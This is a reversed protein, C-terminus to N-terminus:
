PMQKLALIANCICLPGTEDEAVIVWSGHDENGVQWHDPNWLMNNDIRLVGAKEAAFMADNWDTSPKWAEHVEDKFKPNYSEATSVTPIYDSDPFRWFWKEIKGSIAEAVNRDIECLEEPTMAKGRIHLLSDKRSKDRRFIEGLTLGGPRPKDFEEILQDMAEMIAPDVPPGSLFAILEEPTM